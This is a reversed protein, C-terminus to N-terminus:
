PLYGSIIHQFKELYHTGKPLNRTCVQNLLLVDIGNNKVSNQRIKFTLFLNTNKISSSYGKDIRGKKINPRQFIGINESGQV